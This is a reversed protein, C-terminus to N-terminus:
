ATEEMDNRYVWGNETERYGAEIASTEYLFYTGDETIVEADDIRFWEESYEDWKLNDALDWSGDNLKRYGADEASDESAYYNDGIHIVDSDDYRCYGDEYEDYFCEDLHVWDDNLDEVYGAERASDEDWYYEGDIEICDDHHRYGYRDNWLMEDIPYWNGNEDADYEDNCANEASYYRNGDETEVEPDGYYWHGDYDDTFGDETRHWTDDNYDCSLDEDSENVYEGLEEIYHWGDESACDEDCYYTGDPMEIADNRDIESGCNECIVTSVDEDSIDDNDSEEIARINFNAYNPVDVDNIMDITYDDRDFIDLMVFSRDYYRDRCEYCMINGSNTHKRGCVPCIAEETGVTVTSWEDNHNKLFSVNVDSNCSLDDYHIGVKRYWPRVESYGGKFTWLNDNGWLRAVVEQLINRYQKAKNPDGGDRADPYVRHQILVTGNDSITFLCRNMKEELYYFHGDYTELVTYFVVTNKDLMLTSTGGSCQGSYCTNRQEVNYCDIIQCSGVKHLLSMGWFDLPNLSILAHVKYTKSSIAEALVNFQHQYGVERTIEEGENNTTTQTERYENLGIVTCLKNIVRSLKQGESANVNYYANIQEAQNGTINSDNCYDAIYKIANYVNDINQKFEETIFYSKEDDEKIKRLGETRTQFDEYEKQADEQIEHVDKGEIEVKKNNKNAFRIMARIDDLKNIYYIESKDETAKLLQLAPIKNGTWYRFDKLPQQSFQKPFEVNKIVIAMAEEDWNPDTRFKSLLNANNRQFEVLIKEMGQETTKYGYKRVFKRCTENSVM